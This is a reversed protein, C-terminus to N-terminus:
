KTARQTKGLEPGFFVLEPVVSIRVTESELKM